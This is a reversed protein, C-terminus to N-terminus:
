LNKIVFQILATAGLAVALGVAAYIITSRLKGIAEPNGRSLTFKLGSIVLVILSIGGLVGFVIMFIATLTKSGDGSARPGTYEFIQALLYIM